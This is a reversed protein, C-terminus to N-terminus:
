AKVLGQPTLQYRVDFEGAVTTDHDIVLVTERGLKRLADVVLPKEAQGLHTTLEDVVLFPIRVGARSFILASLAFPAFALEVLRRQGGSLQEYRREAPADTDADREIVTLGLSDDLMTLQIRLRGRSVEGLFENAHAELEYLVTRLVLAPLGKPGYATAWFELQRVRESEEAHRAQLARLAEEAQEIREANLQAQLAFPNVETVWAALQVEAGQKISEHQALEARQQTFIGLAQGIQELAGRAQSIRAELPARQEEADPQNVLQTQLNAIRQAFGNVSTRMREADVKADVLLKESSHAPMLQGCHHCALQGEGAGHYQDELQAAHQSAKAFDREAISKEAQAAALQREIGIRADSATLQGLAAMTDTIVAEYAQKSEVWQAEGELRPLIAAIATGAAAVRDRAAEIKATHQQEWETARETFDQARLTDISAEERAMDVVTNELSKKLPSIRGRTLKQAVECAQLGFAQALLAKRAKDADTAFNGVAGQGLSVCTRWLPYPLGVIRNILEQAVGGKIGDKEVWGDVTVAAGKGRQKTRTVVVHDSKGQLELTVAVKTENYDDHIVEDGRFTAGNAGAKRPSTQGYLAWTIADVLATKGVGIEGQILIMGQNALDLDLEGDLACFSEIHVGLVRVLPATPAVAAADPVDALIARGLAAMPEREEDLANEKVYATIADDLTLAFSPPAAPDEDAPLPKTRVDAAPLAQMFATVADDEADSPYRVEVIDTPLIDLDRFDQDLTLVYHKPFGELPVWTPEVQSSHVVALGKPQDREAFTLEFPNGLYWTRDGLQQRMHYHGAYFARCKKEIQGLYIRGPAEHAMNTRAGSIEAHAFVTWGGGPLDDLLAAQEEPDERWPLLAVQNPLTLPETVVTVSEFPELIRLGHISGDHTVQDHNGPILYSQVGLEEWRQFEELLRVILRQNLPGRSDWFDGLFIVPCGREVALTGVRDLVDLARDATKVSYHLDAFAIYSWDSAVKKRRRTTM